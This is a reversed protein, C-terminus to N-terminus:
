SYGLMPHKVDSVTRYDSFTGGFENQFKELYKYGDVAGNAVRGLTTSM